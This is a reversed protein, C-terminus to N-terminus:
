EHSKKKFYERKLIKLDLLFTSEKEKRLLFNKIILQPSGNKATFDKISVGEIISLLKQLDTEDIEISYLQSEDTENILTTKNTHEEAFKLKNRGKNIFHLRNKIQESASFAPHTILKSLIAKENELFSLNELNNDIFFKDYSTKEDIFQKIKKRKDISNTAIHEFYNLKYVSNHLKLFKSYANIILSFTLLLVIAFILFINKKQICYEGIKKYIYNIMMKFKKTKSM